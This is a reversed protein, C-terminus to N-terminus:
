SFWGRIHAAILAPAQMPGFHGLQEFCTLEAQPMAEAAMRGFKVPPSDDGGVVVAVPTEVQALAEPSADIVEEFIRAEHEPTCRLAVEGSPLDALGHELYDWLAAETFDGLPPRNSFRDYAAQRSAFVQKRRRAGAALVNGSARETESAATGHVAEFVPLVPEYAWAKAFQGPRALLAHVAVAGGLSHGVLGAAESDAEALVDAVALLDDRMHEWGLSVEQPTQTYGHARFDFALCHFDAALEAAVQRWTHGHMGNGHIFLLTPASGGPDALTHVALRVGESSEVQM